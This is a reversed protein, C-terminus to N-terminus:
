WPPLAAPRRAESRLWLAIGFLVFLILGAAVSALSGVQDHASAEIGLEMTDDGTPVAAEQAAFPLDVAYGPDGEGLESEVPAAAPAAAAPASKTKKTTTARAPTSPPVPPPKYTTTRRSPPATPLPLISSPPTGPAPEPAPLLKEAPLLNPLLTTTTTNPDTPV